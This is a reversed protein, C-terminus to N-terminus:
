KGCDKDEKVVCLSLLLKYLELEYDYTYTNEQEGRIMDSFNRMMGDYRNFLDTRRELGKDQWSWVYEGKDNYSTYTERMATYMDCRGDKNEYDYVELPKIEITGKEGCIVLQRRIFGGPEAACTKVFSFGNEYRFVAMGFDVGDGGYVSTNCPIVEMPKGQIRYVLDVLHCGLYFMMGGPLQAMWQRKEMSHECDMHAEISYIKGLLGSKAKKVAEAVFPNFRYMYGVSFVLRKQKLVDILEEFERLETGGPKDMHIHLNHEAAMLAYRVLNVEETEIIAADLDPQLLADEVTFRRINKEKEYAEIRDAYLKEECQPVAFGAVEFVEPMSLISDFIATAHDHGLGIQIIKLRKMNTETGPVKQQVRSHLYRGKCVKETLDLIGYQSQWFFITYEM